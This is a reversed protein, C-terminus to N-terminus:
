QRLRTGGMCSWDSGSEHRDSHPRKHLKLRQIMIRCSDFRGESLDKGERQVYCEANRLTLRMWDHRIQVDTITTLVCSGDRMPWPVEDRANRMKRMIALALAALFLLSVVARIGRLLPSM